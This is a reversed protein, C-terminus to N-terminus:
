TSPKRVAPNIPNIKPTPDGHCQVIFDAEHWAWRISRRFFEPTWRTRSSWGRKTSSATQFQNILERIVRARLALRPPTGCGKPEIYLSALMEEVTETQDWTRIAVTDITAVRLVEGSDRIVILNSPKGDRNYGGHHSFAAILRGLERAVHHQERISLENSALHELVSKGQLRELVLLECPQGAINARLLALPQATRLGHRILWQAGRWQRDGRSSRFLRKIGARFGRDIRCKVVVQESSSGSPAPVARVWSAGDQKLLTSTHWPSQALWAAWDVDRQCPDVTQRRLQLRAIQM